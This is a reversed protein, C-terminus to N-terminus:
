VEYLPLAIAVSYGHGHGHTVGGLFDLCIQYTPARAVCEGQEHGNSASITNRRPLVRTM